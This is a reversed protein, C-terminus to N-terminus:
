ILQNNSSYIKGSFSDMHFDGRSEITIKFGNFEEVQTKTILVANPTSSIMTDSDIFMEVKNDHINDLIKLDILEKLYLIYYNVKLKIEIKFDSLLVQGLVSNKTDIYYQIFYPQQLQNLNVYQFDTTVNFQLNKSKWNHKLLDYINYGNIVIPDRIITEGIMKSATNRDLSFKINAESPILEEIIIPIDLEKDQIEIKNTLSYLTIHKRKAKAIATSSFGKSSIMIGKNADIDELTSVFADIKGVPIRGNYDKCEVAIKFHLDHVKITILIDIQREIEPGQIKVNHEITAVDYKAYIWNLVREVSKEFKTGKEVSSM